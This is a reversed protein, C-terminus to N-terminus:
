MKKVDALIDEIKPVKDSYKYWKGDGHYFAIFPTTRVGYYSQVFNTYGETGITFNPHKKLDYDRYFERIARLDYKASFTVMVVQINKLQDMKPKLEYMMRQCHTCDPMFYIIMVPKGKKLSAPTFWVSDTTLLRFAPIPKPQRVSDPKQAICLNICAILSLFLIIKKM